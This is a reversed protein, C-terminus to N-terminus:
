FRMFLHGGILESRPWSILRAPVPRGRVSIGRIILVLWSGSIMRRTPGTPPRDPRAGRQHRRDRGSVLVARTVCASPMRGEARWRHARASGRRRAADVGEGHHGLRLSRDAQRCGAARTLADKDRGADSVLAWGVRRVGCGRRGPFQVQEPARLHVARAGGVPEHLAGETNIAGTTEPQMLPGAPGTPPTSSPEPLRRYPPTGNARNGGSAQDRIDRILSTPRRRTLDPGSAACSHPGDGPAAPRRRRHTPGHGDAAGRPGDHDIPPCRNVAALLARHDIWAGPRSSRPIALSACRAPARRRRPSIQRRRARGVTSLKAATSAAASAPAVASVRNSTTISGVPGAHNGIATNKVARPCRHEADGARLRGIQAPEQRPM